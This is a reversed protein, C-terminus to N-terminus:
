KIKLSPISFESVIAARGKGLPIGQVEGKLPVSPDSLTEPIETLFKFVCLTEAAEGRLLSLL